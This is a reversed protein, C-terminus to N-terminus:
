PLSEFNEREKEEKQKIDEMMQELERRSARITNAACLQLSETFILKQDAWRRRSGQM